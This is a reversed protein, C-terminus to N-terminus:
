NILVDLPISKGKYYRYCQLKDNFVSSKFIPNGRLMRACEQIGEIISPHPHILNALEDVGKNMSILLSVAQITSSAHEGLARMGLIKMDDDDTVLIKFFGNTKRMAIARAICSYDMKVLRYDISLAQAQQENLGVTAVEPDLFMISSINTYTIPEPKDFMQEIAHRGELEGVNVLATHSTLDGVAFINKVSSRTNIDKVHGRDTMEVGIKELGLGKTNPIRGVSILAKEVHHISTNGNKDTLEYEVQGNIIEMRTLQSEEHIVIDKKEFNESILTSIDKDEFPLIRDQKDIIYVKTKGINAFITAYECGIVGAGLIVMSKPFDKIHGIGDSSLIVKEDIEINPLKRPISGTALVIYDSKINKSKENKTIEVTNKDLLKATGREMKFLHNKEEEQLIKLHCSLQFSREFIAENVTKIFDSWQVDLRLNSSDIQKRTTLVNQSFEWMTKSTLAGDYLGAGGLKNKEILVVKKGYDIARMAAAYGAPGGGIICVDYYDM